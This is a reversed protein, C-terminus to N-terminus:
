YHREKRKGLQNIRRVQVLSPVYSSFVLPDCYYGFNEPKSIHDTGIKVSKFYGGDQGIINVTEYGCTENQRYKRSKSVLIKKEEDIFFSGVHFNSSFHSLPTWAMKFFKTWSVVNPEIKTTIWIEIVLCTEYHEYLVALQEERVCSLTVTNEYYSYFPLSLRPGFREAIFDFCLLFDISNSVPDGVEIIQRTYSYTNGKM